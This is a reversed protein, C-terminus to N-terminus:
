PSRFLIGTIHASALVDFLFSRVVPKQILIWVIESSRSCLLSNLSVKAAVPRPKAQEAHALTPGNFPFTRVVPKQILTWGIESFRSSLPSNWSVKAAVPKAVPKPKVQEAQALTPGNLLLARM